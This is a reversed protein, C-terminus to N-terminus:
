YCKFLKFSSYKVFNCQREWLKNLSNIESEGNKIYNDSFKLEKLCFLSKSPRQISSIYNNSLEIRELNSDFNDLLALNLDGLNFGSLVLDRLEGLSTIWELKFNGKENNFCRLQLHGLSNLHKFSHADITL